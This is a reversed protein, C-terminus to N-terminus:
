CDAFFSRTPSWASSGGDDTALVRWYYDRPCTLPEWTTSRASGDLTVSHVYSGRGSLFSSNDAVQVTFSAPGCGRYEWSLTPTRTFVPEGDAPSILIPVGPACPPTTTSTSTTSTSTTTSPSTTPPSTTPPSTTPPSTTRPVTTPPSTTPPSTTPPNTIRPATTPPASTTPGTTSPITTAGPITTGTVITGVVIPTTTTSTTTSTTTGTTTSPASPSSTTSSAGPDTTSTSGGRDDGGARGPDGGVQIISMAEIGAGGAVDRGFARLEYRGPGPPDWVTEATMLTPADPDSGEHIEVGDITMAIAGVGDADTAHVTIIIPGDAFWSGDVPRDIWAQAPTAAPAVGGGTVLVGAVVGVAVGTAVGVAVSTSSLSLKATVASWWSM